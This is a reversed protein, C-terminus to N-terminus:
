NHEAYVVRTMRLTQIVGIQENNSTHICQIEFIDEIYYM